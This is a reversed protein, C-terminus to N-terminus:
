NMTKAANEASRLSNQADKVRKRMLINIDKLRQQMFRLRDTEYRIYELNEHRQDLLEYRHIWTKKASQEHFIIKEKVQSTM